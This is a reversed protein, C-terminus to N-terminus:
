WHFGFILGLHSADADLQQPIAPFNCDIDGAKIDAKTQRYQAGINYREGFTFYGGLGLWVGMGGGECALGSQTEEVTFSVVALGGGVFPHFGSMDWNKRVGVAFESTSTELTTGSSLDKNEAGAGLLDIALNLPWENRGFDLQIGFEGQSEGPSWDAASMKKSGLGFNLNGNWEEGALATGAVLWVLVLIMGAIRTM